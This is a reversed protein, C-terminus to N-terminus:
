DLTSNGCLANGGWEEGYQTRNSIRQPYEVRVGVVFGKLELEVGRGELQEYVDRALNGTDLVVACAEIREVREGIDKDETPNVNVNVRTDRQSPHYSVDLGTV